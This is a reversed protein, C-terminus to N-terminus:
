ILSWETYIFEGTEADRYERRRFRQGRLEIVEDHTTIGLEDSYWQGGTEVANPGGTSGNGAPVALECAAELRVEAPNAESDGKLNSHLVDLDRETEMAFERLFIHGLVAVGLNERIAGLVVDSGFSGFPEAVEESKTDQRGRPLM